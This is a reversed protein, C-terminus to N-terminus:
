TPTWVLDKRELKEEKKKRLRPRRYSEVGLICLADSQEYYGCTILRVEQGPNFGNLIIAEQYSIFDWGDSRWLADITGTEDKIKCWKGKMGYSDMMQTQEETPTTEMPIIRAHHMDVFSFFFNPDAKALLHYLPRTKMKKRHTLYDQVNDVDYGYPLVARALLRELNLLGLELYNIRKM